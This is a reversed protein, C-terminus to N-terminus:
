HQATRLKKTLIMPELKQPLNQSDGWNKQRKKRELFNIGM